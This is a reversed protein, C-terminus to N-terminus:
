KAAAAGEKQAQVRPEASKNMTSIVRSNYKSGGVVNQDPANATAVAQARVAAPDAVSKFQEAGRSGRPINQDAAAAARVAEANVEDRNKASVAAQVGDYTEAQAGAAALISLAAAALIHSTKM